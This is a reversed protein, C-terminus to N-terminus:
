EPIKVEVVNSTIHNTYSSGSLTGEIQLRVTKATDPLSVGTIGGGHKQKAGYWLTQTQFSPPITWKSAIWPWAYTRKLEKGDLDTVKLALGPSLCFLNTVTLPVSTNNYITVECEFWMDTHTGHVSVSGLSITVNTNGPNGFACAAILLGLITLLRKM